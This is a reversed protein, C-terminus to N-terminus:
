DQGAAHGTVPSASVGRKRVATWLDALRDGTKDFSLAAQDIRRKLRGAASGDKDAGLTRWLGAQAALPLGRWGAVAIDASYIVRGSNTFYKKYHDHGEALDYSRLGMNAMQEIVQKQLLNGPSYQSFAPNFAAIWPHFATGERFGFDASVLTDGAWLGAQFGAPDAAVIDLLDRAKPASILDVLGSLRYQQSKFDYLAAKLREDLPGWTLQLQYGDRGMQSELRRFNKFRKPYEARRQELYDAPPQGELRVLRSGTGGTRENEFCNWPDLLSSTRYGGLGAMAVIERLTLRLGARVVPGSYDCFPAGIPRGLGDPRAHFAFAAALGDADEILAVRADGLSRGITQAFAPSLLPTDYEPHAARLRNWAAIDNAGLEAPSVIRTHWSPAGTNQSAL